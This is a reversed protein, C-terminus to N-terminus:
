SMLGWFKCGSLIVVTQGKKMSAIHKGAKLLEGNIVVDGIGRGGEDRSIRKEISSVAASLSLFSKKSFHRAHAFSSILFLASAQLQLFKMKERKCWTQNQAPEPLFEVPEM